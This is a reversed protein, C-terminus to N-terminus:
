ETGYHRRIISENQVILKNSEYENKSLLQQCKLDILDIELNAHDDINKQGQQILETSETM